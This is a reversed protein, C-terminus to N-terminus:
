AKTFEYMPEFTTVVEPKDATKQCGALLLVAPIAFLMLIKKM